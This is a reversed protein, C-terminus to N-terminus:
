RKGTGAEASDKTSEPQIMKFPWFPKMETTEVSGGRGGLELGNKGSQAYLYVEKDCVAMKMIPWIGPYNILSLLISKDNLITYNGYYYKLGYGYEAMEVKGDSFFTLESDSDVGYMNGSRSRFTVSTNNHFYPQLMQTTSEVYNCDNLLQNNGCVNHRCGFCTLALIFLYFTRKKIRIKDM